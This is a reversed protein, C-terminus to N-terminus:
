KLIQHRRDSHLHSRSEETRQMNIKAQRKHQKARGDNARGLLYSADGVTGFCVLVVARGAVVLIM